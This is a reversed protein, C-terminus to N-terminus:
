ADFFIWVSLTFTVVQNVNQFLSIQLIELYESKPINSIHGLLDCAFYYAIWYKQLINFTSLIKRCCSTCKVCTWLKYNFGYKSYHHNNTTQTWTSQQRAVVLQPYSSAGKAKEEGGRKCEVCSGNKIGPSKWAHETSLIWADPTSIRLFSCQGLDLSNKQEAAACWWVVSIISKYRLDGIVFRALELAIGKNRGFHFSNYFCM